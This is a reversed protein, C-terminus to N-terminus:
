PSKREYAPSPPRLFLKRLDFDVPLALHMVGAMMEDTTQDGNRVEAEPNPNRPNNPSNDFIATAEIRTGRPLIKEGAVEYTLQWNFDYRPVRLLVEQSGDPYVARFEFSKGRLHMHPQLDILRVDAGLTVRATVSHNAEGPPIVFTMNTVGFYFFRSRPQESAFILGLKSRDSAAKGNPTYHLQLVIESGAPLFLASGDPFPKAPLGPVYEGILGDSQGAEPGGPAKPVPVGPKAEALWKSGGRRAFAAIHHVVGRNGPRLEIARIWKDEAFRTPLLVWQYDVIGTSPVEFAQPMEFVQDPQGISWGTTFVLPPPAEDPNGEPAGKDAWEVLTDIEQKALTRDNKFHSVGPEAFWPPMKRTLVAAKMAKAWPRTERYTILPMPAAEGPRHCAQCRAQLIPAVNKHFTVKPAAAVSLPLLLLIAPCLNM